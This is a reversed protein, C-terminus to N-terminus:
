LASEIPASALGDPDTERALVLDLRWGEDIAAVRVSSPHWDPQQQHLELVIPLVPLRGNRPSLAYESLRVVTSRIGEDLEVSWPSLTYGGLLGRDELISLTTSVPQHTAEAPSLRDAANALVEAQEAPPLREDLEMAMSELLCLCLDDPDSVTEAHEFYADM